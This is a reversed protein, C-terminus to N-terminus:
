SSLSMMIMILKQNPNMMKVLSTLFTIVLRELVTYGVVKDPFPLDTLLRQKLNAMFMKTMHGMEMYWVAKDTGPFNAKKLLMVDPPM